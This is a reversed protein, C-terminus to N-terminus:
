AFTSTEFSGPASEMVERLCKMSPRCELAIFPFHLSFPRNPPHAVSEQVKGQQMFSVCYSLRGGFVAQTRRRRSEERRRMEQSQSAEEAIENEIQLTAANWGCPGRTYKIQTHTLKHAFLKETPLERSQIPLNAGVKPDEPLSGTRPRITRGETGTLFHLLVVMTKKSNYLGSM